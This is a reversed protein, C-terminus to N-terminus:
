EGYDVLEQLLKEQVEPYTVLVYVLWSLLSSTTTYGAATIVVTNSLVLGRPFKQGTEDVANNLYQL